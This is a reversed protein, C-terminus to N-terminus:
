PLTNVQGGAPFGDWGSLGISLLSLSGGLDDLVYIYIYIHTYIYINRSVLSGTLSVVAVQRNVTSAQCAATFSHFICLTRVDMSWRM